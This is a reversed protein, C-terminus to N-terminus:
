SRARANGLRPKSASDQAAVATKCATASISPIKTPPLPLLVRLFAMPCQREREPLHTEGGQARRAPHTLRRSGPPAQTLQQPRGPHHDRVRSAGMRQGKACFYRQQRAILKQGWPISEHARTFRTALFIVTRLHVQQASM